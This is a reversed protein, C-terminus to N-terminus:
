TTGIDLFRVALLALAFVRVVFWTATATPTASWLVLTVTVTVVFVVVRATFIIATVATTGIDLFRVALLALAFVRVVFWTATAAATWVVLTVTVTVVVVVVRATSIITTVATTVIDLFRVAFDTLTEIWTFLFFSECSNHIGPSLICSYLIINNKKARQFYLMLALTHM